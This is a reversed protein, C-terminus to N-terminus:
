GTGFPTRILISRPAPVAAGPRGTRWLMAVALLGLLSICAGIVVSRPRYTFVVRSSGAPVEVLRFMYNGRLIPVDEDNVRARWGPFYTDALLLYGRAPAQVEIEIHEPDNSLFRVSGGSPSIPGGLFESEPAEEVFAVNRLDDNGTALRKLLDDPQAVVEIRPVYRARPLATDSEHVEVTAAPLVLPRLGPVAAISSMNVSAVFYRVAAVDFLRHQPDTRAATYPMLHDVALLYYLSFRYGLLGEYDHFGPVGMVSASKPILRFIISDRLDPVMFSREQPTMAARLAAFTDANAYLHDFSNLLRGPWRLPMSLLNLAIAGIVFWASVVALSPRLAAALVAILILVATIMEITRVGGPILLGLALAISAIVAVETWRSTAGADRTAVRQLAFGTLVALSLGTLWFFRYPVRLTAAGPPLKIFLDYLPTAAGFGLVAYMSGVLLYFVALTRKRTVVAAVGALVVVGFSFPIPLRREALRALSDQLGILPPTVWPPVRQGTNIVRFSERAYEAAPVLQIAALLPGLTLGIAIAAVATWPPAERRTTLAWALRFAILQYTLATILVFGPLIELTIAIALGVVDRRTPARLLREVFLLAWPVWAWPGNHMPSWSTLQAMPDGLQFVLAAAFAAVWNLGIERALLLMGVAGLTMNIILIVHVATNAELVLFLLHLPYFLGNVTNALFPEGCAQLPNWLLGKGGNALSNLAYVINPVFYAYTDYAAMMAPRHLEVLVFYVSIAALTAVAGVGARSVRVNM